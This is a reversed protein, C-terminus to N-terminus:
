LQVHQLAPCPLDLEAAAHRNRLAKPLAVGPRHAWLGWTVGSMVRRTARQVVMQTLICAPM